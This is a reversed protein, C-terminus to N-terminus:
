TKAATKIEALANNFAKTTLSAGGVRSLSIDALKKGVVQSQYSGSFRKQYQSSEGSHDGSYAVSVATVIDNAVTLNVAVIHNTRGPANYNTTASYNANKYNTTVAVPPKPTPTPNPTVPTPKPTPTVPVPKPSVAPAPTQIPKTTTQEAVAL